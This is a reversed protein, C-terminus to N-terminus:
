VLRYLLFTSKGQKHDRKYNESELLPALAEDWGGGLKIM